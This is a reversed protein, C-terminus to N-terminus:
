GRRNKHESSLNQSFVTLNHTEVASLTTTDRYIDHPAIEHLRLLEVNVPVAQSDEGHLLEDMVQSDHVGADTVVISHVLGRKSETGVHAKMGFYWQNGKKTQKM